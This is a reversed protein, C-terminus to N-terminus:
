ISLDPSGMAPFPSKIILFYQHGATCPVRERRTLCLAQIFMIILIDPTPYMTCIETVLNKNFLFNM